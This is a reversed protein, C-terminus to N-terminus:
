ARSTAGKGPHTFQFRLECEAIILVELDCGEWPAHISVRVLILADWIRYEDCGEWPAHISVKLLPFPLLLKHTAGKGPHTFQFRAVATKLADLPPDCGEWPAHISVLLHQFLSLRGGQRM